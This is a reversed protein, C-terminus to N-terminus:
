HAVAEARIGQLGFDRSSSTRKSTSRDSNRGKEPAARLGGWHHREDKHVFDWWWANGRQYIGDRHAMANEGKKLVILNKPPRYLRSCHDALASHRDMEDKTPERGEAKVRNVIALM